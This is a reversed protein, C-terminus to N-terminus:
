KGREEDVKRLQESYDEGSMMANLLESEVRTPPLNLRHLPSIKAKQDDPMDETVQPIPISRLSRGSLVDHSTGM